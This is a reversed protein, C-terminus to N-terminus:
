PSHYNLRDWRYENANSFHASARPEISLGLTSFTGAVIDRIATEDVLRPLTFVHDGLRTYRSLLALRDSPIAIVVTMPLEDAIAIAITDLRDRIVPDLTSDSLSSIVRLFALWNEQDDSPSPRMADLALEFQDVILLLRPRAFGPQTPFNSAGLIELLRQSSEDPPLRELRQHLAELGGLEPLTAGLARAL